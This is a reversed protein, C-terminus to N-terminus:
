WIKICKGDEIRWVLGEQLLEKASFLSKWVFSPRNGLESSLFSGHPFYKAKLVQAVLSNPDQV